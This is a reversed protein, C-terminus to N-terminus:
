KYYTNEVEHKQRTKLLRLNKWSPSVWEGKPANKLHYSVNPQAIKLYEAIWSVSFGEAKLGRVLHKTSPPAYLILDLENMNLMMPMVQQENLYDLQLKKSMNFKPAYYTLFIYAEIDKM